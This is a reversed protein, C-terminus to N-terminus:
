HEPPINSFLSYLSLFYFISYLVIFPVGFLTWDEFSFDFDEETEPKTGAVEEKKKHKQRKSKKQKRDPM